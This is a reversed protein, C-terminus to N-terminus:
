KSVCQPFTKGDSGAIAMCVEGVSGRGVHCMPFPFVAHKRNEDQVLKNLAGGGGAAGVAM